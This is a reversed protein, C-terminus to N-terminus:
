MTWQVQKKARIAETVGNLSDGSVGYMRRVGAQALVDMLLEAVNRKVMVRGRRPISSSVVNNGTTDIILLITIPARYAEPLRFFRAVLVSAVAAVATRASHVVVPRVVSEGRERELRNRLLIRKSCDPM